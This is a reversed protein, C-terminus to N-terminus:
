GVSLSSPAIYKLPHWRSARGTGHGHGMARTTVGSRYAGDWRGGRSKHPLVSIRRVKAAIRIVSPAQAGVGIGVASCGDAVAVAVGAVLVGGVLGGAADGVTKAKSTSFWALMPTTTDTALSVAAVRGPKSGPWRPVISIGKPFGCFPIETSIWPVSHRRSALAIYGVGDGKVMNTASPDRDPLTLSDVWAPAAAIGIGSGDFESTPQVPYGGVPPWAPQYRSRLAGDEPSMGARQPIERNIRKSDGDHCAV